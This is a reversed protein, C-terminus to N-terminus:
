TLLVRGYGRIRGDFLQRNYKSRVAEAIENAFPGGCDPLRGEAVLVDRTLPHALLDALQLGAINRDKKEIKVHRSTLTSRVKDLGMFYTGTSWVSSYATELAENERKGRAEAMVDGRRGGLKLWGCYRELMAEMCYHYPHTLSRYKKEWHEVKDIVIAIVKYDAAAVLALLDANFAARKGDDILVRFPGHGEVIDRRHLVPPRDPDYPLHKRKFEELEAQFQFYPERDFCVGTLGLYRQGLDNPDSRFHDGTEDVYLRYSM